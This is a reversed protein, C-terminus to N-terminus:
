VEADLNSSVLHKWYLSLFAKCYINCQLKTNRFIEMIDEFNGRIQNVCAFSLLGTVLADRKKLFIKVHKREVNKNNRPGAEETL